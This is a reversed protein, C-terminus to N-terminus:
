HGIADLQAQGRRVFPSAPNWKARLEDLDTRAGARDVSEGLRAACAREALRAQAAQWADGDRASATVEVARQALAHAEAEPAISCRLDALASLVPGLMRHQSAEAIALAERLLVEAEELEGRALLVYGLNHLPYALDDFQESRHKRDSALAARLLPEAADLDGDELLLRGLNNKTTGIHPSDPDYVREADRLADVWVTRATARDGGFFAASGLSIKASITHTHDAGVAATLGEVARAFGARAAAHDQGFSAILALGSEIRAVIIAAAPDSADVPALHRRAAEFASRAEADRELYTLVDGRIAELTARPIADLVAADRDLIALAALAADYDGMDYRVDALQLSSQVRQARADEDLGAEDTLGISRQLLDAGSRNLGLSAYAQGLTALFRARIAPRDFQSRDIRQVARDLVERVTVREGRAENADALEFVSVLFERTQRESRLELEAQAQARRAADRAVTADWALWAFVAALVLGSVSALLWRKQRRRHDRQRLEDYRVGLLGAALKFFASGFGDAEPRADAALPEGLAGAEDGPDQLLLRLPLAARAPDIRPDLGPDGDVVFAFVPRSPHRRRFYAIEADVWPSAVAAPSGVVVLAESEDLAQQISTSLQTASALEDRDRFVPHLRSPLANADGDGRRLAGPVRFTELRRHLRQTVVSDRHSYSLFARYRLRGSAV